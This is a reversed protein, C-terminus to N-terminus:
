CVNRMEKRMASLWVAIITVSPTLMIPYFVSAFFVSLGYQSHSQDEGPLIFIYWTVGIISALLVYLLPMYILMRVLLMILSESQPVRLFGPWHRYIYIAATSCMVIILPIIIVEFVNHLRQGEPVVAFLEEGFMLCICWALMPPFLIKLM